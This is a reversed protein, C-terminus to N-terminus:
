GALETALWDGFIRLNDSDTRSATIWGYTFGPLRCDEELPILWGHAVATEVLVSSALVIGQGAMAAHIAHHEQDFSVIRAGTAAPAFRDLWQRWGVAPLRESRWRTEILRLDSLLSQLRRRRGRQAPNVYAGFSEQTLMRCDVRASGPPLYRIAADISSRGLDEPEESTHIRVDLDAHDIQFAALRPVLWLTAFAATTSVTLVSRAADIAEMADAIRAFADRTAAALLHGQETLVVRRTQRQFLRVGLTQELGRIQHSIATPTVHLERAAAQFSELRAAAEFARLRNLPPLRASVAVSSSSKRM